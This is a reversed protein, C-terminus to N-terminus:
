DNRPLSFARFRCVEPNLENIIGIAEEINGAHIAKKIDVRVQISESDQAEPPINAEKAFSRAAAPFGESILYDMIVSNIDSTTVTLKSDEFVGTM